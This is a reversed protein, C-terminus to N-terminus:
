ESKPTSNLGLFYDKCHLYLAIYTNRENHNTHSPQETLYIYMPSASKHIRRSIANLKQKNKQKSPKLANPVDHDNRKLSYLPPKEDTVQTKDNM